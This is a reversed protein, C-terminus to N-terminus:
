RSEGSIRSSRAEGEICSHSAMDASSCTTPRRRNSTRTPAAAAMGAHLEFTEGSPPGYPPESGPTGSGVVPLEFVPELPPLPPLVLEPLLLLPAAPLLLPLLELPLLLPLALLLPPLELPPVPLLPLALELPLLLPLAELLPLLEPLADLLPLALELPLADDLPPPAVHEVVPL